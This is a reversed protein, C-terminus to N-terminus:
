VGPLALQDADKGIMEVDPMPQGLALYVDRLHAILATRAFADKTKSLESIIACSFKLLEMREKFSMKRPGAFHWVFEAVAQKMAQAKPQGSEMVILLFGIPHYITTDYNKGDTATLKVAVSHADIYSNRELIKNVADRPDAYELWEGIATKTAHPAGEIFVVQSLAIEGWNFTNIETNMVREKLPYLPYFRKGTFTQIWSM